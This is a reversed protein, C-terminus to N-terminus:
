PKNLVNIAESVVEPYGRFRKYSSFRFSGGSAMKHGGGNLKESALKSVDYGLSRLGCIGSNSVDMVFDIDANYIELLGNGISTINGINKLIICRANLNPIDHILNTQKCLHKLKANISAECALSTNINEGILDCNYKKIEQQVSEEFAIGCGISHIDKEDIIDNALYLVKFIANRSYESFHERELRALETISNSVVRGYRFSDPETDKKWLDYSNIVDVVKLNNKLGYTKEVWEATLKTGCKTEDLHYWPYLDATNKGTKHHDLVQITINVDQTNRSLVENHLYIAAETTINLDTILIIFKMKSVIDSNDEVFSDIDSLITGLRYRIEEGYNSNYYLISIKKMTIDRVLRDLVIQSGYGDLDIHSLNYIREIAM